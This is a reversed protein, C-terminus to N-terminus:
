GVIGYHEVMSSDWWGMPSQRSPQGRIGHHEVWQAIGGDWLTRCVAIGSDWLARNM